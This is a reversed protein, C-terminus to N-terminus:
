LNEDGGIYEGTFYHEVVPRCLNRHNESLQPLIFDFYSKGLSFVQSFQASCNEWSDLFNSDCRFCISHLQSCFAELLHPVADLPVEEMAVKQWEHFDAIYDEGESLDIVSLSHLMQNIYWEGVCVSYTDEPMAGPKGCFKVFYTVDRREM